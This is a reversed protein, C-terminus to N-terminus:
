KSRGMMMGLIASVESKIEQLGYTTSTVETRIDSITTEIFSVESKIESLGFTPSFVARGINFLYAECCAIQEKLEGICDIVNQILAPDFCCAPLRDDCDGRNNNWPDCDYQKASYKLTNLNEQERSKRSM